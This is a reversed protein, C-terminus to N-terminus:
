SFNVARGQIYELLEKSDHFIKEIRAKPTLKSIKTELEKAEKEYLDSKSIYMVIDKGYEELRRLLRVQIDYPYQAPDFTFVILDCAYKIACYSMREIHNEADARNLTGPTDIFQIKHPTTSDYGTLLSRTTFAYDSIKPKSTTIKSLLTSKGVNPFGSIAVTYLGDKVAPFKELAARCEDLYIFIEKNRKFLSSVRGIYQNKLLQMQRVDNSTSIKRSYLKSFERVKVQTWSLTALAKKLEVIGVEIKLMEKYFESLNDFSPFEKVIRELPKSLNSSIIQIMREETRKIKDMRDAGKLTTKYASAEKKARSLALDVYFQYKEVKTIQSFSM